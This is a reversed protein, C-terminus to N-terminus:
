LEKAMAQATAIDDSQSSKDGGLLLLIFQGHRQACYIRYGPGYFFASQHDAGFRRQDSGITTPRGPTSGPVLPDLPTDFVGSQCEIGNPIPAEGKM